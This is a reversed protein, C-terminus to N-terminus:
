GYLRSLGIRFPNNPIHFNDQIDIKIKSIIKSGNRLKHTGDKRLPRVQIRRQFYGENETHVM